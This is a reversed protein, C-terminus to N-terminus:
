AAKQQAQVWSLADNFAPAPLDDVRSIEIGLNDKAVKFLAAPIINRATMEHTLRTAQDANIPPPPGDAVNAKTKDYLALGFPNGFSRLARKLADTEAEKIASEHADAENEPRSMGSGVAAGERDIGNVNVRVCCRYGIRIQPNGKSDKAEVRSCQEMMTITYAWGDFDFIRNAECIAHYGEIYEGYKGQPAPKVHRRDLPKALEAKSAEKLM